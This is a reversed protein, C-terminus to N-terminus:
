EPLRHVLSGHVILCCRYCRIRRLEWLGARLADDVAQDVRAALDKEAIRTSSDQVDEVTKVIRRELEDERAMLLPRGEHGVDVRPQRAFWRHDVSGVGEVELSLGARRPADEARQFLRRQLANGHRKLAPHSALRQLVDQPFRFEKAM